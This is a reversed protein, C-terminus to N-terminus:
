QIGTSPCLMSLKSFQVLSKAPGCWVWRHGMYQQAGKGSEDVVAIAAAELADYVEVFSLLAAAGVTKLASQQEPTMGQSGPTSSPKGALTRSVRHALADM